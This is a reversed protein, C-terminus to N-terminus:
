PILEILEVAEVLYLFPVTSLICGMNHTHMPIFLTTEM